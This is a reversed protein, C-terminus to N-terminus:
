GALSSTNMDMLNVWIEENLVQSIQISTITSECISYVDDQQTFHVGGDRFVLVREVKSAEWRRHERVTSFHAFDDGISGLSDERPTPPSYTAFACQHSSIQFRM